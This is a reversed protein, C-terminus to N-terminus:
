RGFRVFGKDGDALLGDPCIEGAMMQFSPGEGVYLM